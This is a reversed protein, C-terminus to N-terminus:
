DPYGLLSEVCLEENAGEVLASLYESLVVEFDSGAVTDSEYLLMYASGNGGGDGGCTNRVFESFDAAIYEKSGDNICYWVDNGSAGKYKSYNFYHGDTVTGEHVIVGVLRYLHQHSEDSPTAVFPTFDLLEDFALRSDDKTYGSSQDLRFRKLHCILYPPVTVMKATLATGDDLKQGNFFDELADSLYGSTVSLPLTVLVESKDLSNETTGSFGEMLGLHGYKRFAKTLDALYSSADKSVEMSVYESSFEQKFLEFLGDVGIDQQVGKSKTALILALEKMLAEDAENMQVVSQVFPRVLSLMELVSTMYCLSDPNRLLCPEGPLRLRTEVGNRFHMDVIAESKSRWNSTELSAKLSKIFERVAPLSNKSDEEEFEEDLLVGERIVLELVEDLGSVEAQEMLRDM